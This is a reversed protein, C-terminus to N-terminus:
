EKGYSLGIIFAEASEHSHAFYLDKSNSGTVKIFQWCVFNPATKVEIDSIGWGKLRDELSKRIREGENRLITQKAALIIQIDKDDFTKNGRDLLESLGNIIQTDHM